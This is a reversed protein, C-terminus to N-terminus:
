DTEQMEYYKLAERAWDLRKQILRQRRLANETGAQALRALIRQDAAIEKDIKQRLIEDRASLLLGGYIYETESAYREDGHVARMIVYYKGDDILMQERTIKYAHAHLFHRFAAIESQPQLILEGVGSLVESGDEIIKQMLAGGIGTIMVTDAEGPRLKELGDSLRLEIQDRLHHAGVHAGARRLPGPNVDMAIAGPIRGSEVLYIPVYGHDTGVDCLRSGATVFDAIALMRKSLRM